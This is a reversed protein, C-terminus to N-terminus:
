QGSISKIYADMREASKRKMQETVHGYVDLTFSATAHGLNNQVTKIDDGNRIATVAYCHRLDHFRINPFGIATVAKKFQYYVNHHKLNQGLEDTFVLGCGEWAPGARLKWETQRVWQRQLLGMVSAAPAIRRAKGSKTSSSCYILKGSAPDEIRQLQRDILLVSNELDVQEWTLGLVEGERMGTFLAVLFLTEYPHGKIEEMFARITNDDMTSIEKRQIRPLVCGNSPNSHIYGIAAAKQLSKHLVGHILKITKPALGKKSLDNCFHQVTYPTLNELGQKFFLNQV